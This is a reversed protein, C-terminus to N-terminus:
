LSDVWDVLSEVTICVKLDSPLSFPNQAVFVLDMGLKEGFQMDSVSDGVMVSKHFDIQPFDVKAQYAMGTNPKRCVPNEKALAPCYYIKDIRGGAETVNTIMKEHILELNKESYVGKGIGQQNTVLIIKGFIASLKPLAQLVGPIFHFEEWNKVYDNERKVNIVGDRDLFLTWSKDYTSHM